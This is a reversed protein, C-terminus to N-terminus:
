PLDADPPMNPYRRFAALVAPDRTTEFVEGCKGCRFTIEKPTASAGNFLLLWAGVGNKIDPRSWHHYRDHGCRCTPREPM